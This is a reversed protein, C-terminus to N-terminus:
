TLSFNNKGGEHYINKSDINKLGTQIKQNILDRYEQKEKESFSWRSYIFATKKANIEGRNILLADNLDKSRLKMKDKKVTDENIARSKTYEQGEKNNEFSNTFFWNAYTNVKYLQDFENENIQTNQKEITINLREALREIAQPFEIREYKMIFSAVNGGEGCGFCHIQKDPSVMFSATKEQHFPCNTKFNAGAKKLPIYESLVDAINSEQIVQDVIHQPIRKMYDPPTHRLM